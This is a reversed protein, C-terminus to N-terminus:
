RGTTNQGSEGGLDLTEEFRARDKGDIVIVLPQRLMEDHTHAVGHAARDAEGAFPKDLVASDGLKGLGHLVSDLLTSPSPPVPIDIISAQHRIAEQKKRSKGQRM